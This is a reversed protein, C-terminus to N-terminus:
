KLVQTDKETVKTDNVIPHVPSHHNGTGRENVRKTLLEVNIMRLVVIVNIESKYSKQITNTNFM